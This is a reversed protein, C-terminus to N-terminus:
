TIQLAAPSLRVASPCAFLHAAVLGVLRALYATARAQSRLRQRHLNGPVVQRLTRFQRDATRQVPKARGLVRESRLSLLDGPADQPLNHLPQLEQDIHSQIVQREGAAARRKGAALTLADPQGALDATAERAHEIHEILWANAQVLAVVFPQQARQPPQLRQAVRNQHHLMVLIRDARGVMQDVHARRRAHRAAM